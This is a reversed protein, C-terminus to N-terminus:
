APTLVRDMFEEQSKGNLCQLDRKIANKRTWIFSGTTDTGHITSIQLRKSLIKFSFVSGPAMYNRRNLM